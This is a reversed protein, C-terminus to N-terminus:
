ISLQKKIKNYKKQGIGNVKMLEETSVFKHSKRYKVIKQATMQGIGPLQALEEITASNINVAWLSVTIMLAMIATLFKM